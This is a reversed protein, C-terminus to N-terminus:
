ECLSLMKQIGEDVIGVSADRALDEPTGWVALQWRHMAVALFRSLRYPGVNFVGSLYLEGAHTINDRAQAVLAEYLCRSDQFYYAGAIAWPSIPRKEQAHSFLPYDCVYSYSTDGHGRFLMVAGPFNRAQEYFVDLPYVFGADTNVVMVEFKDGEWCEMAGKLGIRVSDAQGRTSEVPVFLWHNPLRDVFSLLDEKRCVVVVRESNRLPGLAHEIM